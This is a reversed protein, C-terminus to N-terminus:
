VFEGRLANKRSSACHIVCCTLREALDPGAQPHRGVFMLDRLIRHARGAQNIMIRLSRATEPDDTRLLLLQARGVIM